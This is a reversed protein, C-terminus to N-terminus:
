SVGTIKDKIFRFPTLKEILKILMTSGVKRVRNFFLVKKTAFTTNNLVTANYNFISSTTNVQEFPLSREQQM